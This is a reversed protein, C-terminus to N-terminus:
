CHPRLARANNNNRQSRKKKKKEKKASRSLSPLDVAASTGDATAM